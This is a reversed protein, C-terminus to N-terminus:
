IKEFLISKERSEVQKKIKKATRPLFPELLEGLSYCVFLTEFIVKEQEWSEEWPKKREIYKDTFHILKWVENLAKKLEYEEVLRNVKKETASVQSIVEGGPKKDKDLEVDKKKALSVSRALLNGLGDALDSNYKEIFRSVSFDGDGTSPIESLLYYRLAESGFREIIEFPDVVNGLSKSMKKGESTIFGHVLINKPVELQASLLMGIWIVSHFRLIDKGICHVDAPWYKKFDDSEKEYGIASIYNSLADVWVYMKQGKDGPVPIGWELKDASRSVSVDELGERIFSLIERKREEPVVKVQDSEILKEIEKQYSSLKFFYNEEEIEEPHKDHNPCKGEVLDKETLFAECGVCYHGVYSKKYLDGKKQLENWMKEVAPWHRKSDTTRIFDDNSIDIKSTLEKFQSAVEDVFDQTEKGEEKAKRAIKQGHEDTGTLFYVDKGKKRNYRALVDAQVLELTFGIHPPGNTYAISTTIYFKDDM